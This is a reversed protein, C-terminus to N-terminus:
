GVVNDITRILEHVYVGEVLKDVKVENKRLRSFEIDYLDTGRNYKIYVYGKYRVMGSTKFKLGDGMDVMHKYAGWDFMAVPNLTSIQSYITQAISM